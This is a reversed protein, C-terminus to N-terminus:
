ELCVFGMVLTGMQPPVLGFAEYKYIFKNGKPCKQRVSVSDSLLKSPPWSASATSRLSSALFSLSVSTVRSRFSLPLYRSKRLVRWNILICHHSHNHAAYGWHSIKPINKSYLIVFLVPQDTPVSDCTHTHTHKHQHKNNPQAHKHVAYMCTITNFFVRVIAVTLM